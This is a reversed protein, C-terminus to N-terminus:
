LHMKHKHSLLKVALLAATTALSHNRGNERVSIEYSAISYFRHTILLNVMLYVKFKIHILLSFFDM